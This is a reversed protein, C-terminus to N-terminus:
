EEKKKKKEPLKEKTFAVEKEKKKEERIKKINKKICEAKLPKEADSVELEVELETAIEAIRRLFEAKRAAEDISQEDAAIEEKRKKKAALFLETKEKMKKIDDMLKKSKEAAKAALREVPSAVVLPAVAESTGADKGKENKRRLPLVDEEAEEERVRDPRVKKEKTSRKKEVAALVKGIPREDSDSEELGRIAPVSGRSENKTRQDVLGDLWDNDEEDIMDLIDGFVTTEDNRGVKQAESLDRSRPSSPSTAEM